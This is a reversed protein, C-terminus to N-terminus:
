CQENESAHGGQSYLSSALLDVTPVTVFTVQMIDLVFLMDKKIGKSPFTSKSLSVQLEIIM